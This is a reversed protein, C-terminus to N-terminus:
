TLRSIKFLSFQDIKDKAAKVFNEGMRSLFKGTDARFAVRTDDKLDIIKTDLFRVDSYVDFKCWVDIDNKGAKIGTDGWRSLYQGNDAQLAVQGDTLVTVKFQSYQDIGGKGANIDNDSWRSLYVGTDAQLAIVDGTKLPVTVPAFLAVSSLVHHMRETLEEAPSFQSVRDPTVPTGRANCQGLYDLIDGAEQEAIKQVARIANLQVQGDYSHVDIFRRCTNKVYLLKNTLHALDQLADNTILGFTGSVEDLYTWPYIVVIIPTGPQDKLASEPQFAKLM